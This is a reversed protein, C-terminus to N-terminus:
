AFNKSMKRQKQQTGHNEKRILEISILVLSVTRIQVPGKFNLFNSKGLFILMNEPHNMDSKTKLCAASTLILDKTILTGGCRYSLGSFRSVYIESFWPFRGIAMTDEITRGCKAMENDFASNKVLDSDAENGFNTEISVKVKPTDATVLNQRLIIAVLVLVTLAKVQRDM